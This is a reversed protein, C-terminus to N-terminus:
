ESAASLESKIKSIEDSTKEYDAFAARNGEEIKETLKRTNKWIIWGIFCGLFLCLAGGLLLTIGWDLLYKEVAPTLFPTM